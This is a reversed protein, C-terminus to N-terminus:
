AGLWRRERQSLKGDKGLRIYAYVSQFISTNQFTREFTEKDLGQATFLLGLKDLLRSQLRFYQRESSAVKQERLRRIGVNVTSRKREKGLRFYRVDILTKEVDSLQEVVREVCAKLWLLNRKEVIEGAIYEALEAAGQNSRYSLIARNLIHEEYDKEVTKLLPYVYLAAKVYGKM